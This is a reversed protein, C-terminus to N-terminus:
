ITLSSDPEPAVEALRLRTFVMPAYYIGWISVLFYRLFRLPLALWLPEDPFILGLGRWLILLGVFGVIYRLVRKWISGHVLFRVRSRELVLGISIGLLGSVGTTFNEFSAIEATESFQYWAVQEDPAKTVILLIIYIVMFALPVSTAILLRQGLIRNQFWDVGYSRWLSFAILILLGVVIGAIVDEIDHVGLYIRSLAMMLIMIISLIWVWIKRFWLAITGYLVTSNQAHGSAVGYSTEESLGIDPEKWYPRPDRLIHKILSNFTNSFSLLYALTAGLDKNLCWYILTIFALYFEFQGIIDFIGFIPELQPYNSQLWRAVELSFEAFSDM